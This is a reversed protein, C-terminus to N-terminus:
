KSRRRRTWLLAGIGAALLTTYSPEPVAAGCGSACTLTTLAGETEVPNDPTGDFLAFRRSTFSALSPPSLPLSTNSFATGTNDDLTLEISLNSDTSSTGTVLYEDLPGPLNRNVTINVTDGSFPTGDLAGGVTGTFSVTMAFIGGMGTYGGSQATNLVQPTNSAFTYSGTFSATGFVGFPDNDVAGTFTFTIPDASATVAGLLFGIAFFQKSM